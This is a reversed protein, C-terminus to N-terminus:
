CRLPAAQHRSCDRRERLHREPPASLRCTSLCSLESILVIGRKLTQNLFGECPTGLITFCTM